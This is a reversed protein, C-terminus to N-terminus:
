CELPSRVTALSRRVRAFVSEDVVLGAHRLALVIAGAVGDTVTVVSVDDTGRELASIARRAVSPQHALVSGGLVLPGILDPEIVAGLTAALADAAEAVIRGAVEDDRAEADFVLPALRALEM